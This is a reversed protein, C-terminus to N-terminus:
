SPKRYSTIHGSVHLANYRSLYDEKNLSVIYNKIYARKLGNAHLIDVAKNYAIAADMETAYRGVITHGNIHIRTLFPKDPNTDDVSVGIYQNLIRINSYRYDHTDGNVMEYDRGYVAYPKIGYRSLLNYQSGYDSFFLYGGRQQITHTAYFFLDDRDFKLVVTPNLHYEFYNKRLYIPTPFYLGCDRYNVLSIFKAYPLTYCDNYADPTIQDSFILQRAEEYVKAADQEKSFSGLSIHKGRVTISSRYSLSGDKKTTKYIGTTKGM